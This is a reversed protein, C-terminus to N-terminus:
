NKIAFGSGIYGNRKFAFVFVHKVIILKSTKIYIQGVNWGVADNNITGLGKIGSM